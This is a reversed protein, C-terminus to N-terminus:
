KEIRSWLEAIRQEFPKVAARCRKFEPENCSLTGDYWAPYLKRVMLQLEAVRGRLEAERDTKLLAKEIAGLSNERGIEYALKTAETKTM